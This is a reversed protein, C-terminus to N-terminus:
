RIQKVEFSIGKQLVKEDNLYGRIVNLLFGNIPNDEETFRKINLKDTKTNYTGWIILVNKEERYEGIYLMHSPKDPFHTIEFLKSM